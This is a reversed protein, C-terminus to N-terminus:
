SAPTDADPRRGSISRMVAAAAALLAQAHDAVDPSRLGRPLGMTLALAVEAEVGFVPVSLFQVEGRDPEPEPPLYRNGGGTGAAELSTLSPAGAAGALFADWADTRSGLVYGRRRIVELARGWDTPADRGPAAEARCLWSGSRNPDAWAFFVAGIPPKLPVRSGEAATISGPAPVGAHALVILEDASAVSVNCEVGFRAAVDGIEREAVSVGPVVRRAVSGLPILAPGLSYTPRSADRRLYGRATLTTILGHCTAKSIDLARAVESM